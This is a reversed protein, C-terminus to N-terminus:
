ARYFRANSHLIHRVLLSCFRIRQETSDVSPGGIVIRGLDFYQHINKACSIAPGAIESIRQYHEPTHGEEVVRRVQDDSM